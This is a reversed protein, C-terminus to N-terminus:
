QHVKIVMSGSTPSTTATVEFRVKDWEETLSERDTVGAGVTASSLLVKDSWNDDGDYTGYWEVTVEADLNNAYQAVSRGRDVPNSMPFTYTNTDRIDGGTSGDVIHKAM